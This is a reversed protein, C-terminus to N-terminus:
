LIMDIARPGPQRSSDDQESSSNSDEIRRWWMNETSDM